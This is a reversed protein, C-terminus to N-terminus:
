VGGFFRGEESENFQCCNELNASRRRQLASRDRGLSDGQARRKNGSLGCIGEAGRGGDSSESCLQSAPLGRIGPRWDGPGCRWRASEQEIEMERKQREHGCRQELIKTRM